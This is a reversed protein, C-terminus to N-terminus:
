DKSVLLLLKAKAIADLASFGRVYCTKADKDRQYVSEMNYPYNAIPEADWGAYGMEVHAKWWFLKDQLPTEDPEGTLYEIRLKDGVRNAWRNGTRMAKVVLEADEQTAAAYYVRDGVKVAYMM